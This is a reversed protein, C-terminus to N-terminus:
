RILTIVGKSTQQRNNNDTLQIIWVYSGLPQDLGQYTGNWGKSMDSTEFVKEGFRNYITFLFAKVVFPYKVTFIDNVGDGNPTFANPLMLSCLGPTIKIDDTYSGCVNTVQLRYIGTDKVTYAPQTSGDQWLYSDVANVYPQLLIAEGTCIVTDRGLTFQPKNLSTIIVTDKAICGDLNVAVSYAGAENVTFVPEASGDQWIYAANPYFANLQYSSGECITTDNGLSVSPNIKSIIFVSDRKVCTSNTIQLWYLGSSTVTESPTVAGTSWLYNGQTAPIPQLVLSSDNCLQTDNGITFAPVSTYTIAITDSASCNYLNTVRVYYTGSATVTYDDASTNDQWLYTFGSNQPAALILKEGICLTTDNGIFVDPTPLATLVVTDKSICGNADKVYTIYRGSDLSTFLNFSQYSVGDISYQLPPTGGIGTIQLSGNTNNCSAQTLTVNEKPGPTDTITITTDRIANAADKIYVTYIGTNLGSFMNGAQFNSGDISYQYPPIGNAASISISGNPNSCVTNIISVNVHLCSSGVTVSTSDTSGNADKITVKYIGTSLNNFINGSQFNIGDISFEYPSSGNHGTANITGNNLGCNADTSIATVVPCKSGITIIESYSTGNADKVTFTYNGPDLGAFTNNAQYNIGDLTYSYPPTGYGPTITLSGNSQNCSADTSSYNIDIPCYVTSVISYINIIGAADKIYIHYIGPGLNSFSSDSQYNIGDLSFQYPPTGNFIYDLNIAGNNNCVYDSYSFGLGLCFRNDGLFFGTTQATCGNADKVFVSYLGPSLNTIINSTQFTVDDISYEYPPTGNSATVALSGDFSSCTSPNQYGSIICSPPPQNNVVTVNATDALGVADIVIVQYVGAELNQFNGNNQYATYGSYDYSYVYPANGGNALVIISGTSNGCSTPTATITLSINGTIFNEKLKQSSSRHLLYKKVSLINKNISYPAKVEESRLVTDHMNPFNVLITTHNNKKQIINQQARINSYSFIAFFFVIFSTSNRLM